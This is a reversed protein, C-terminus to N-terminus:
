RNELEGRLIEKVIRAAQQTEIVTVVYDFGNSKKMEEMNDLLRKKREEETESARTKLRKELVEISPAKFYILVSDAPFERQFALAGDRDMIKIINKGNHLCDELSSRSMGYYNGHNKASEIMDHQLEAFEEISVYIYPTRETDVARPKRTTYSSPEALNFEEFGNDAKIAGVVSDKGVGSPGAVIFVKGSNSLTNISM